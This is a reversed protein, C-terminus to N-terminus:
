PSSLIYISNKLLNKPGVWESILSKVYYIIDILHKQQKPRYLDKLSCISTPGAYSCRLETAHVFFSPTIAKRSWFHHRYASQSYPLRLFSLFLHDIYIFLGLTMKTSTRFSDGFLLLIYVYIYLQINM